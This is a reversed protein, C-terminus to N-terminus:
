DGYEHSRRTVLRRQHRRVFGLRLADGRGLREDGLVRFEFKLIRGLTGHDMGDQARVDRTPRLGLVLWLSAPFPTPTALM